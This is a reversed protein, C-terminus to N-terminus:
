NSVTWDGGQEERHSLLRNVAFRLQAQTFPKPIFDCHGRRMLDDEHDHDCAGHCFVFPLGPRLAQLAHFTALGNMGPMVMDLVVLAIPDGSDNIQKIAARGSTAMVVKHGSLELIFFFFFRDSDDDDVVMIVKNAHLVM